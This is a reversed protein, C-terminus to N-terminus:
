NFTYGIGFLGHFGAQPVIAHGEAIGVKAIAAAAKVELSFFFGRFIPIRKEAAIQLGPGSIHYGRNFLGQHTNYNMNRITSEPHTVIVGAGFRLIMLDLDLIRNITLYNYGHSIEFHQVEPPNNTLTIKLHTLELEWGKRDKATGIKWSYYVPLQFSETRYHATLEINEYGEQEIVLPMNFCYADGLWIDFTWSRQGLVHQPEHFFCVMVLSIFFLRKLEPTSFNKKSKWKKM